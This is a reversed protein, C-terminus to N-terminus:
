PKMRSPSDLLIETRVVLNWNKTNLYLSRFTTLRKQKGRRLYDWYDRDFFSSNLFTKRFVDMNNHRVHSKTWHATSKSKKYCVTSFTQKKRSKHEYKKIKIKAQLLDINCLHIQYKESEIVYHFREYGTLILTEFLLCVCFIDPVSIACM